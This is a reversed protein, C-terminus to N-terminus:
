PVFTKDVMHEHHNTLNTTSKEEIFYRDRPYHGKRTSVPSRM